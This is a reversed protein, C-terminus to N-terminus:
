ESDVMSNIGSLEQNADLIAEEVASNFDEIEKESVLMGSEANADTSASIDQVSESPKVQYLLALASVLKTAVFKSYLGNESGSFIEEFKETSLGLENCLRVKDTSLEIGEILDNFDGIKIIDKNYIKKMEQFLDKATINSLDKLYNKFINKIPSLQATGTLGTDERIFDRFLNCAEELVNPSIKNALDAKQIAKLVENGQDAVVSLAVEKRFYKNYINKGVFTIVAVSGITAIIPHNKYFSIVNAIISTSKSKEIDNGELNNVVQGNQLADDVVSSSVVKNVNIEASANLSIDKIEITKNEKIELSIVEGVSSIVVEELKVQELREERLASSNKMSEKPFDLRIGIVNTSNSLGLKVKKKIDDSFVVSSNNTIKPIFLIEGDTNLGPYYYLIENVNESVKTFNFEKICDLYENQKEKRIQGLRVTGFTGSLYAGNFRANEKNNIEIILMFSDDLKKDVTVFELRRNFDFSKALSTSAVGFKIPLCSTLNKFLDALGNFYGIVEQDSFSKGVM